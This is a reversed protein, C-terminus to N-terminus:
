RLSDRLQAPVPQDLCTISEDSDGPQQTIQRITDVRAALDKGIQTQTEALREISASLDQYREIQQQTQQRQATLDQKTQDLEGGLRKTEAESATLDNKVVLLAIVLGGIVILVGAAGLAKLKWTM